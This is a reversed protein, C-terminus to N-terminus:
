LVVRVPFPECVNRAIALSAAPFVRVEEHTTTVIAFAVEPVQTSSTVLPPRSSPVSVVGVPHYVPPYQVM